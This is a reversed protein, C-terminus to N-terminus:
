RTYYTYGGGYIDLIGWIDEYELTRKKTEGLAIYGYMTANKSSPRYLDLLKLFHGFEHTAANRLDYCYPLSGNSWDYYLNFRMDCEYIDYYYDPYSGREYAWTLTQAIWSTRGYSYRFEVVNYGDKGVARTTTGRYSFTFRAGVNNWTNAAAKILSSVTARDASAAGYNNIYYGVTPWSAPWRWESYKYPSMPSVEASAGGTSVWTDYELPFFYLESGVDKGHLALEILHFLEQESLSLEVVWGDRLTFKGKFAGVVAYDGEPAHVLFAATREGTVFRAEHSVWLVTDGVQGGLTRVTVQQPAEGKLIREVEVLANTYILGETEFCHTALVRGVVINEAARVLEGLTWEGTLKEAAARELLEEIELEIGGSNPDSFLSSTLNCGSFCFAMTLLFFWVIIRKNKLM